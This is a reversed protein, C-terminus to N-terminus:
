LYAVSKATKAKKSASACSPTENFHSMSSNLPAVHVAFQPREHLKQVAVQLARLQAATVIPAYM